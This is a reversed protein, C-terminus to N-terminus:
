STGEVRRTGDVRSVPWKLGTVSKGAAAVGYTVTATDGTVEISEITTGRSVM